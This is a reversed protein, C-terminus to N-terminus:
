KKKFAPSGFYYTIYQFIPEQNATSKVINKTVIFFLIGTMLVLIMRKIIKSKNIAKSIKRVDYISIGVIVIISFVYGMVSARQGSAKKKDIKGGAYWMEDPHDFYYMVPSAVMGDSCISWLRLITNENIITDNNLLMVADYDNEISYKIGINNAHSFGKNECKFLRFINNQEQLKKFDDNSPSNDVVLVDVSMNSEQISNLCEVTDTFGNYNVLIVAIRPNNNKFM